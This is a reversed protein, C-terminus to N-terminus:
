LVAHVRDLLRRVPQRRTSTGSARGRSRRRRAWRARQLLLLGALLRRRGARLDPAEESRGAPHVGLLRTGAICIPGNGGDSDFTHKTWGDGVDTSSIPTFEGLYKDVGAQHLEFYAPISLGFQCSNGMLALGSIALGLVLLRISKLSRM